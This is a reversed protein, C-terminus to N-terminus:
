GNALEQDLRQNICDRLRDRLRMIRMRIAAQSRRLRSGIRETAEGDVYHATLLNRDDDPLSRLCHVLAHRRAVLHGAQGAHEDYAKELLTLIGDDGVVKSRRQQRWRHLAKNMAIQRAWRGFGVADAPVEHPAKALIILNVEQFLDEADAINRVVAYLYDMLMFQHKLLLQTAHSVETM